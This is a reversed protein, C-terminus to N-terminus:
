NKKLKIKNKKIENYTKGTSFIEVKLKKLERALSVIGSKDSVSILSRNIKLLKSM